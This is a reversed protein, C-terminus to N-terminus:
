GWSADPKIDDGYLRDLSQAKNGTSSMSKGRPLSSAVEDSGAEKGASNAFNSADKDGMLSGVNGMSSNDTIGGSVRYDRYVSDTPQNITDDGDIRAGLDRREEVTLVTTNNVKNQPIYGPTLNIGEAELSKDRLSSELNSLGSDTQNNAINRRIDANAKDIKQQRERGLKAINDNKQKQIKGFSETYLDM